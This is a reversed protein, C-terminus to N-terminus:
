RTGTREVDYLQELAEVAQARGDRVGRAWQADALRGPPPPLALLTEIALDLTPVHCDPEPRHWLDHLVSGLTMTLILLYFGGILILGTGLVPHTVLFDWGSM